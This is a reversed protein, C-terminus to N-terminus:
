AFNCKFLYKRTNINNRGTTFTLLFSKIKSFFKYKETANTLNILLHLNFKSNQDVYNELLYNLIVPNKIYEIRFNSFKCHLKIFNIDSINLLDEESFEASMKILYEVIDYKGKGRFYELPTTDYNDSVHHCGYGSYGDSVNYCKSIKEKFWEKIEDITTETRILESFKM